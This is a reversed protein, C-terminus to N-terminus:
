VNATAMGRAFDFGEAELDSQYKPGVPVTDGNSLVLHPRGKSIFWDHVAENVIWHSRHSWFGAVGDMEDVADRLRMRIDYTADTTVVKVRHGDGTLRLIKGSFARPLRRTLRPAAVMTLTAGGAVPARRALMAPILYIAASVILCIGLVYVGLTLLQLSIPREPVFILNIWVMLAPLFVPLFIAIIVAERLIVNRPFLATVRPKIICALVLSFAVVGGWFVLRVAFDGNGYTDFPGIIALLVSGLIGAAVMKVQFAFLRHKVAILIRQRYPASDM